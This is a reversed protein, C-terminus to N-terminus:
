EIIEDAVLLLSRPIDLSLAKAEKLNIVLEYKTPQEVQLDRPKAENFVKATFTAARRFVDVRDAGYPLLGGETAEKFAFM